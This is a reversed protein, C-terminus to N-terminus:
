KIAPEELVAAGWTSLPAKNTPWIPSSDSLSKPWYPYLFPDMSGKLPVILMEDTLLNIQGVVTDYNWPDLSSYQNPTLQFGSFYLRQEGILLDRIMVNAAGFLDTGKTPSILRAHVLGYKGNADKGAVYLDDDVLRFFRPEPIKTTVFSPQGPATRILAKPGTWWAGVPFTGCDITYLGGGTGRQASLALGWHLFQQEDLLGNDAIILPTPPGFGQPGFAVAFLGKGATWPFVVTDADVVHFPLDAKGFEPLALEHWTGDPLVYRLVPWFGGDPLTTDFGTVLLAGDALVHFRWPLLTGLPYVMVTGTIPDWRRIQAQKNLGAWAGWECVADSPIMRYYVRGAADFQIPSRRLSPPQDWPEPLPDFDTVEPDICQAVQSLDGLAFFACTQDGYPLPKWNLFAIGGKPHTALHRVSAYSGSYLGLSPLFVDELYAAFDVFPEGEAEM